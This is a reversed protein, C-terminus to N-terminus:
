AGHNRAYEQVARLLTSEAEDVDGDTVPRQMQANYPRQFDAWKSRWALAARMVPALEGYQADFRARIRNLAANDQDQHIQINGADM